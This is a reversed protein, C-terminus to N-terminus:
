AARHDETEGREDCTEENGDATDGKALGRRRLLGSGAEQAAAPIVAALTLAGALLGLISLRRMEQDKRLPALM